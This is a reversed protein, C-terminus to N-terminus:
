IMKKKNKLPNFNFTNVLKLLKIETKDNLKEQALKLCRTVDYVLIIDLTLSIQCLPVALIWSVIYERKIMDRKKNYLIDDYIYFISYWRAM